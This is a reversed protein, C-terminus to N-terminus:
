AKLQLSETHGVCLPRSLRVNLVLNFPLALYGAVEMLNSQNSKLIVTNKKKERATTRLIERRMRAERTFWQLYEERRSSISKFVCGLSPRDDLDNIEPATERPWRIKQSYIM